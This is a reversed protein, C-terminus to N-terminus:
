HALEGLIAAAHKGPSPVHLADPFLLRYLDNWGNIKKDNARADLRNAVEITM